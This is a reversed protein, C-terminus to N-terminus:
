VTHSRYLFKRLDASRDAALKRRAKQSRHEVHVRGRETGGQALKDVGSQQYVAAAVEVREFMREGTVGSVRTQEPAAPLDAVPADRICQLIKVVTEDTHCLRFQQGM